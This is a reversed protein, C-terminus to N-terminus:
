ILQKDKILDQVKVELNDAIQLLTELSPQCVNTCWESVISSAVGLQNALMKNTRNKETPVMKIRNIRKREM